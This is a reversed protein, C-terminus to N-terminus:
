EKVQRVKTKRGNELTKRSKRKRQTIRYLMEVAQAIVGDCVTLNNSEKELISKSKM